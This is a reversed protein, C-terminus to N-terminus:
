YTRKNALRQKRALKVKTRDKGSPKRDTIMYLPPQPLPADVVTAAFAAAFAAAALAKQNTM